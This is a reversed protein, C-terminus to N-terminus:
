CSGILISRKGGSGPAFVSSSFFIARLNALCVIKAKKTEQAIIRARLINLHKAYTGINPCNVIELESTM